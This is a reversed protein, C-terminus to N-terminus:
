RLVIISRSVNRRVMLRDQMIYYKSILRLEIPRGSEQQVVVMEPKKMRPQSFDPM